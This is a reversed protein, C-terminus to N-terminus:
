SCLWGKSLQEQTMRTSVKKFGAVRIEKVTMGEAFGSPSARFGLPAVERSTFCVGEPNIWAYAKIPHNVSSLKYLTFM